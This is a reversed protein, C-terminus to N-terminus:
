GSISRPLGKISTATTSPPTWNTQDAWASTDDAVCRRQSKPRELSIKSLDSKPLNDRLEEGRDSLEKRSGKFMRSVTALSVGLVHCAFSLGEGWAYGCIVAAAPLGERQVLDEAMRRVQPQVPPIVRVKSRGRNLYDLGLALAKIAEEAELERVLDARKTRMELIWSMEEDPKERHRERPRESAVLRRAHRETCGLSKVAELPTKRPRGRKPKPFILEEPIDGMYASPFLIPSKMLEAALEASIKV